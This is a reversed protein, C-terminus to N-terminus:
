ILAKFGARKDQLVQAKSKEGDLNARLFANRELAAKNSEALRAAQAKNYDGYPNLMNGVIKFGNGQNASCM